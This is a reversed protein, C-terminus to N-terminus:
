RFNNTIGTGGTFYLYDHIPQEGTYFATLVEKAIARDNDSISRGQTWYGHFQNPATIVDIVSEGFRGDKVRNCIVWVVNRKDQPQNDYCEGALTLAIAELENPECKFEDPLPEIPKSTPFASIRVLPEILQITERSVSATEQVEYTFNKATESEGNRLVVTVGYGVLVGVLFVGVIILLVSRKHKVKTRRSCHM